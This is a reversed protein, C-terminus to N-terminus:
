ARVVVPKPRGSTGPYSQQVYYRPPHARPMASPGPGAGLVRAAAVSLGAVLVVAAAAAVTEMVRRRHRRRVLAPRVAAWPREPVPVSDLEARLRRAVDEPSMTM